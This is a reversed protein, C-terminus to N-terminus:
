GGFIAWILKMTEMLWIKASQRYRWWPRQFEPDNVGEISIHINPEHRTASRWILGARRTHYNSTVIVISQLNREQLCSRVARAEQWTSNVDASTECFDIRGAVYNGYQRELYSRAMTPISQGWYSEKPLSILVRDVRQQQLLDIAGAIRVKEAVISGQLVVAADAHGPVPENVILVDDGWRLVCLALLIAAALLWRLALFLPRTAAPMETAKWYPGAQCNARANLSPAPIRVHAALLYDPCQGLKICVQFWHRWLM